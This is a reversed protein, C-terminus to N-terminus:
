NILESDEKVDAAAVPRLMALERHLEQEVVQADIVRTRTATQEALRLLEHMVHAQYSETGDPSTPAIRTPADLGLLLRRAVISRHVQELYRPDGTQQRVTKEVHKDAGKQQVRVSELAQQSREWGAWAERELVALKELEVDVAEDFDRIRSARWERRIATLDTSVTAQSVALERAISSQTQGKVYREAVQQRRQEVRVNERPTRGM